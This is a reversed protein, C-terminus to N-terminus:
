LTPPEPLEAWHTINQCMVEDTEANRWLEGVLYAHTMAEDRGFVLVTIEDDPLHDRVDIWHLTTPQPPHAPMINTTNTSFIM